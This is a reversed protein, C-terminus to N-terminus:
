EGYLYMCLLKALQTQTAAIVAHNAHNVIMGSNRYETDLLNFVAKFQPLWDAKYAASHPVSDEIIPEDVEIGLYKGWNSLASYLMFLADNSYNFQKVLMLQGALSSAFKGQMEIRVLTRETDTLQMFDMADNLSSFIHDNQSTSDSVVFKLFEGRDSGSYYYLRKNGSGDVFLRHIPNTYMATM